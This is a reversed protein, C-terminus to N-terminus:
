SDREGGASEVTEKRYGTAEAWSKVFKHPDSYALQEPVGDEDPWRSLIWRGDTYDETDLGADQLTVPHPAVSLLRNVTESFTEDDQQHLMVVELGEDTLEIDERAPTQSDHSSSAKESM